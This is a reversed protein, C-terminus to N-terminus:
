SLTKGLRFGYIFRYICFHGEQLFLLLFTM